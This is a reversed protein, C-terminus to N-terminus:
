QELPLFAFKVPCSRLNNNLPPLLSSVFTTFINCLLKGEATNYNIETFNERVSYSIFTPPM